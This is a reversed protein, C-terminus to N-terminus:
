LVDCPSDTLDIGKESINLYKGTHSHKLAKGDVVWEDKDGLHVHGTNEGNLYLDSLNDAILKVHCNGNELSILEWIYGDVMWYFERYNRCPPLSDDNTVRAITPDNECEDQNGRELRIPVIMNNTHGMPEVHWDEEAEYEFFYNVNNPNRDDEVLYYRPHNESEFKYTGDDNKIAKVHQVTYNKQFWMKVPFAMFRKARGNNDPHYCKLIETCEQIQLPGPVGFNMNFILPEDSHTMDTKYWFIGLGERHLEGTDPDKTVKIREQASWDINMFKETRVNKITISDPGSWYRALYVDDNKLTVSEGCDMTIPKNIRERDESFITDTMKQYVEHTGLEEMVPEQVGYTHHVSVFDGIVMNPRDTQQGLKSSTLYEDQSDIKSLIDRDKGLMFIMNISVRACFYPNTKLKYKDVNTESETLDEAFQKHCDCAVIPHSFLPGTLGSTPYKKLVDAGEFTWMNQKQQHYATIGNNITNAHMLLPKQNKWRLEAAARITEVDFYLTDDDCKIIIDNDDFNTLYKYFTGWQGITDRAIGADLQERRIGRNVLHVRGPYKGDLDKQINNIYEHDEHNRTMDFMWYHDIAGIKLAEEVYKILMRVNYERGMFTCLNVRFEQKDM